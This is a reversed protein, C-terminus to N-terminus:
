KLVFDLKESKGKKRVWFVPENKNIIEIIEKAVKTKERDKEYTMYFYCTNLIDSFIKKVRKRFLLIALSGGRAAYLYNVTRIVLIFNKKAEDELFLFQRMFGFVVVMDM